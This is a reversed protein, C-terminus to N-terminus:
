SPQIVQTPTLFPPAHFLASVRLNGLNKFPRAGFDIALAPPVPYEREGALYLRRFVASLIVSSSELYM